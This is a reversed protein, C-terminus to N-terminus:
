KLFTFMLDYTVGDEASVRSDFAVFGNTQYFADLKANGQEKEIFVVQGGVQKKATRLEDKALELLQAGSILKGDAANYNKGIQAILYASVNFCHTNSDQKSFRAIRKRQSNSLASERFAVPKHALAFYAVCLGSESDFVFHTVSSSMVTFLIADERLYTDVDKNHRCSFSNIVNVVFAEGETKLIDTLSRVFLGM